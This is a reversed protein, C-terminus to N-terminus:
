KLLWCQPESLQILMAQKYKLAGRSMGGTHLWARHNGYVYLM